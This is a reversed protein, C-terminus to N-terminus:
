GAPTCEVTFDTDIGMYWQSDNSRTVEFVIDNGAEASPVNVSFTDSTAIEKEYLVTYAGSLVSAETDNTKLVRLTVTAEASCNKLRGKVTLGNAAAAYADDVTFVEAMKVQGDTIITGNNEICTCHVSNTNSGVYEKDGFLSGETGGRKLPVYNDFVETNADTYYHIYSWKGPIPTSPKDPAVSLTFNARSNSAAVYPTFEIDYETYFATWWQGNPMNRTIFIIDNGEQVSGAPLHVSFGEEGDTTGSCLVDFEGSIKGVNTDKTRIVKYEISGGPVTQRNFGSVTLGNPASAFNKDITFAECFYVFGDSVMHGDSCFCFIHRNAPDANCATYEESSFIGNSGRFMYKTQDFSTENYGLDYYFYSWKGAEPQSVVDPGHDRNFDELSNTRRVPNNSEISFNTYFGTWWQTGDSRQIAIIIDNGVQVAGEPLEVRISQGEDSSVGEYLM